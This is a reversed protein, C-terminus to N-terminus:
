FCTLLHHPPNLHSICLTSNNSSKRRSPARRVCCILIHLSLYLKIPSVFPLETTIIDPANMPM